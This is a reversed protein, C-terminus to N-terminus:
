IKTYIVDMHDKHPLNNIKFGNDTFFQHIEDFLVGGEYFQKTSIEVRIEQINSLNTLSFGKLVDLEAGQVDLVVDYKINEWKYEKLISEITTSILNISEQIKIHKNSEKWDKGIGYISSSLGTNSFVNFMYNKNCENTVLSNIAIYNTNFIKNINSLNKKLKEYVTPIAEIFLGNKYKDALNEKRIERMDNAGIWLINKIM